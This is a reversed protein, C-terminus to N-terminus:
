NQPSEPVNQAWNQKYSNQLLKQRVGRRFYGKNNGLFSKMLEKGKKLLQKIAILHRNLEGLKTILNHAQPPPM